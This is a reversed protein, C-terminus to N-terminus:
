VEAWKHKVEKKLKRLEPIGVQQELESIRKDIVKLWKRDAELRGGNFQQIDREDQKDQNKM